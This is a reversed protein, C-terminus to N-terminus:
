CLMTSSHCDIASLHSMDAVSTKTIDTIHPKTTDDVRSITIDDASCDRLAKGRTEPLLRCIAAATLTMVFLVASSEAWHKRRVYGLPLRSLHATRSIAFAASLAAVRGSTGSLEVVHVLLTNEIVVLLVSAVVTLAGIAVRQRAPLLCVVLFLLSVMLLSLSGATGRGCVFTLVLQTAVCGAILVASTILIDADRVYDNTSLRDLAMVAALLNKVLWIFAVALVHKSANHATGAAATSAHRRGSCPLRIYDPLQRHNVRAVSRLVCRARHPENRTLLWRPSEPLFLLCVLLTMSATNLLVLVRWEGVLRQLLWQGAHAVSAAYTFGAVAHQRHRASVSEAMYAYGCMLGLSVLVGSVLRTVLLMVYNFSFSTLTHVIFLLLLAPRLTKRRGFRDALAGTLAVTALGANLAVNMLQTYAARSCVLHWDTVATSTVLRRSYRWSECAVLSSENRESSANYSHCEDSPHLQSDLGEMYRTQNLLLSQQGFKTQCSYDPTFVIFREELEITTFVCSVTGLGLMLLYQYTAWGGLYASSIHELDMNISM